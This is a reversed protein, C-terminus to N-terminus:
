FFFHKFKKFMISTMGWSFNAPTSSQTRPRNRCLIIVAANITALRYVFMVDMWGDNVWGDMWGETM